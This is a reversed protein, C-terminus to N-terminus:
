IVKQAVVAYVHWHKTKGLLTKGETNHEVIDMLKFQDNFLAQIDAYSHISLDGRNMKAWADNPGMFHGCFVGGHQLSQTLYQWAVPFHSPECFFLSSCANIIATEPYTFQEFSCVQPFLTNDIHRGGVEKLRAIAADSKDYAYVTYGREVMYMADRGAGCGADVAVKPLTNGVLELARKLPPYVDVSLSKELYKQESM